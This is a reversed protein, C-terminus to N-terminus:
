NGNNLEECLKNNIEEFTEDTRLCVAEDTRSRLFIENGSIYSIDMINVMIPENDQHVIVFSTFM